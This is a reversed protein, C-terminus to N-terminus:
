LPSIIKHGFKPLLILFIQTPGLQIIHPLGLQTIIYSLNTLTWTPYYTPFIQSPGFQTIHSINTLAWFLKHPKYPYKPSHALSILVQFITGWCFTISNFTWYIWNFGLQLSSHFHRLLRLIILTILKFKFLLM